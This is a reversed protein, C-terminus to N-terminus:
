RFELLQTQLTSHVLAAIPLTRLLIAHLSDSLRDTVLTVLTAVAHYRHHSCASAGSVFRAAANMVRQLSALTCAPLGALKANCFDIRENDRHRISCGCSNVCVVCTFFAFQRSDALTGVFILLERDLIVGLDRVSDTPEVVVSCINLNTDLQKLDALM